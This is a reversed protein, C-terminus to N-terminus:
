SGGIGPPCPAVFRGVPAGSDAALGRVDVTRPPAALSGEIRIEITIPIPGSPLGGRHCLEFAPDIGFRVRGQGGLAVRTMERRFAAIAPAEGPDVGFAHRVTGAPGAAPAAARMVLATRAGITAGQGAVLTVATRDPLPVLYPPTTLTLTTRELREALVELNDSTSAACGALLM